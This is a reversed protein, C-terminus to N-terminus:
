YLGVGLHLLQMSLNELYAQGQMKCARGREGGPCNTLAQVYAKHRQESKEGAQLTVNNGSTKADIRMDNCCPPEPMHLASELSCEHAM